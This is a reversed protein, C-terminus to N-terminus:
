STPMRPSNKIGLSTKIPLIDSRIAPLLSSKRQGRISILTTKPLNSVLSTLRISTKGWAKV